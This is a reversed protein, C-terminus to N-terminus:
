DNTVRATRVMWNQVDSFRDTNTNVYQRDLGYIKENTLYLFRPQYLGLAPADQQWAQLFPKYKIDRLAPDLRTRGAELAADAVGSKYMSLNLRTSRPDTQSSDWYVFVDPDVGISIGYLLAAYDHSAIASQLDADALLRVDVKAGVAAWNHTLLHSVTANEITDSASLSFQLPQGNKFRVGGAGPVWGAQDLAAKAAAPNYAAQVTAPDYGLQGALLPERVARTAYGLHRQVNVTDAAAVLAHRVAADSLLPNSTNFFTMTAATLLLNYQQVTSNKALDPPVASLGVAGNLQQKRFAALLQDSRLFTSVVFSSLKPSGGHYAAFPKLAILVRTDNPNANEVQLASWAFPGSGVPHATNFDASRLDNPPINALLHQPVIGNTLTYPFSSLPNPLTFVVTYADKKTITVGQWGGSLPSQVDPNQIAHYTFVIDDATLRQGDQWTLNPKLHVTYGTGREDVEYSRALDGVLHNQENYKFLGSFVLHAVTSDAESTAYLPNANTFTGVVGETYTGGPVPRLTQYHNGLGEIQVVLCGILIVLLLIWAIMFRWVDGLNSLRRFFHRELNAEAQLGLGEVQRQSKRIRRRFRLRFVRLQM